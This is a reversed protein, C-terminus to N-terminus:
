NPSKEELEKLVFYASKEGQPTVVGRYGEVSKIVDLFHNKIYFSHFLAWFAIKRSKGTGVLSYDKRSKETIQTPCYDPGTLALKLYGIAGARITLAFFFFYLWGM